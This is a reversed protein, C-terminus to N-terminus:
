AQRTRDGVERALAEEGPKVHVDGGWEIGDLGSQQVLEVIQEVTLQRFTISTLGTM